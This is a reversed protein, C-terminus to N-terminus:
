ASIFYPRICLKDESGARLCLFETAEFSHEFWIDCGDGGQLHFFGTVTMVMVRAGVLLRLSCTQIGLSLCINGTLFVAREMAEPQMVWWFLMAEAKEPWLKSRSSDNSCLCARHIVRVIPGLCVRFSCM